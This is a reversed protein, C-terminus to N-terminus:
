EGAEGSSMRWPADKRPCLVPHTITLGDFWEAWQHDLHGGVRIVYDM